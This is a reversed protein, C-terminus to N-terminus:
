NRGYIAIRFDDSVADPKNELDKFRKKYESIVDGSLAPADLHLRDFEMRAWATLENCPRRETRPMALEIVMQRHFSGFQKAVDSHLQAKKDANYFQKLGAIMATMINMTGLVYMWAKRNEEENTVGINLVGTITSLMIIPLGLRNSFQRWKKAASNHLWKLSAAKEGWSKMLDEIFENWSEANTEKVVNEYRATHIAREEDIDLKSEM